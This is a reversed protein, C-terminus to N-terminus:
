NLKYKEDIDVRIIKKGGKVKTNMREEELIRIVGGQELKKFTNRLTLSGINFAVSPEKFDAEIIGRNKEIHDLIILGSLGYLRAIYPQGINRM